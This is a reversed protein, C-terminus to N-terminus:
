KVKRFLKEGDIDCVYEFGQEILKMADKASSATECIYNDPKLDGYIEEYLEVYRQTTMISKHGLVRKVHQMSKTKHYERLAKCHRFTHYHIKALRPNDHTRALKKVRRSFCCQRNKHTRKPFVTKEKRPLSLLKLLLTKSIPIIRSNGNKSSKITVKTREVDLDTWELREAENVRAGTEYIFLSFIHSAKWGSNVAIKLEDETPIFTRKHEQKYNPKQWDIGLFNLFSDYAYCILRKTNRTCSKNAINLKVEEPDLLNVEKSLIRLFDTYTKITTESKGMKKLNWAYSILQGKTNNERQKNQQQTEVTVLNKTGKTQTVCIQCDSNYHLFSNLDKVSTTIDQPNSNQSGVDIRGHLSSEDVGKKLSFQRDSVVQKALNSDSHSLKSVQTVVNSKVSSESFRYGCVGCLYRQIKKNAGKRFGDKWIKKSGCDPCIVFKCDPSVTKDKKNQLM